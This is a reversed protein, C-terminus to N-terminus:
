FIGSKGQIPFYQSANALNFIFWNQKVTGKSYLFSMIYQILLAM